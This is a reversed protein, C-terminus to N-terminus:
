LIKVQQNTIYLHVTDKPFSDMDTEELKKLSEIDKDTFEGIRIRSLIEAFKTDGQQRVITTLEHIQFMKAWLCGSLAEYGEEPTKFIPRDGVPPLQLLDGVALISM